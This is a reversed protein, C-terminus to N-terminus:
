KLMYIKRGSDRISEILFIYSTTQGFFIVFSNLSIRVYDFTGLDKLKGLENLAVYCTIVATM